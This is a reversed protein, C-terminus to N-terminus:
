YNAIRYFYIKLQSGIDEVTVAVHQWENYNCTLESRITASCSGQDWFVLRNESGCGNNGGGSLALSYGYNGKMMINNWGDDTPNVWAEMTLTNVMDHSIDYDVEVYDNGSGFSLSYNDAFIDASFLFIILLSLLTKQM